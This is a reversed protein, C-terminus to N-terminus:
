VLTDGLTWNVGRVNVTIIIIDSGGGDNDMEIRGLVLDGEYYHSVDFGGFDAKRVRTADTNPLNQTDTQATNATITDASTRAIPEEGGSPDAILVGIMEIPLLSIIVSANGTGTTLPIYTFDVELPFSTDIGKPLNFQFYIADGNNNLVSNKLQHSWGTPIGGSGVSITTTGVGGSEGFVNGSNVLDIKFRGLGHTTFTGNENIESRSTSLKFQEFVPATTLTSSIRIRAWYAEQGNITKTAWTTENDVGYRVHESNNTRLFLADGYRYFLSSDTAMVGIQVWASGNWIEFVTEGGVMATTQAVKIGWHKLLGNTDSLSSGMLITYNTGTGQFSFTSGTLSRAETSVDTFNGGDTTSTATNDTTFVIMGRTYSDGRGMVTEYGKEARGVHVESWNRISTDGPEGDQFNLLLDPNTSFSSPISFKSEQLNCGVVTFKGSSIGDQVVIDNTCNKFTSSLLEFTVNDANLNVATGVGDAIFTGLLNSSAAQLDLGTSVNATSQINFAQVELIGGNNQIANVIVGSGVNFNSILLKGGNLEFVTDVNGATYICQFAVFFGSSVSVFKGTSGLAICDCRTMTAVGLPDNYIISTTGDAILFTIADIYTSRNATITGMISTSEASIGQLTVGIPITFSESYSGPGIYVVDNLTAVAMAETITNYSTVNTGSILLVGSPVGRLSSEGGGSGGATDGVLMFEPVSYDTLIYFYGDDEQRAVKGVDASTYSYNLRENSNAFSWNHIQHIGEAETHDKHLATCVM